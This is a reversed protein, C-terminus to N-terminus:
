YAIFANSANFVFSDSLLPMCSHFLAIKRSTDQMPFLTQHRQAKLYPFFALTATSYVERIRKYNSSLSFHITLFLKPFQAAKGFSFSRM